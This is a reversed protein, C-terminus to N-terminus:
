NNSLIITLLFFKSVVNYYRAISLQQDCLVNLSIAGEPTVQNKLFLYNEILEVIWAPLGKNLAYSLVGIKNSAYSLVCFNKEKM